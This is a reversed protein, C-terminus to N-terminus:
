MSRPRHGRRVPEKVCYQMQRRGTLEGRSVSRVPPPREAATGAAPRSDWEPRDRAAEHEHFRSDGVEEARSRKTANENGVPAPEAM